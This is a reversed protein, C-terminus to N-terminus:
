RAGAVLGPQSDRSYRFCRRENARQPAGARGAHLQIWRTKLLCNAPVNVFGTLQIEDALPALLEELAFALYGAAKGAGVVGIRQVNELSHEAGCISLTRNAVRVNDRILHEARVADVGANWIAIASERASLVVGM